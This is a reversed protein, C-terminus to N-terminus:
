LNLRMKAIAGLKVDLKYFDYIKINTNGGNLTTATARVLIKKATGMHAIKTADLNIDTTKTQATNVAGSSLNVNAAALVLENPLLLSDLVNYNEDTFFVQMEVDIPFGNTITTRMLCTEIKDANAFKFDFTDQVSFDKATGYMPLNVEMDLSIKSTDIVFNTAPVGTPNSLADVKYVLQQPKNNIIGFVNSNSNTLSFSTQMSQGAQNVTPSNLPLPNPIGTQALAYYGQAPTYGDFRTISARVPLGFSNNITFKIEPNVITFAGLGYVNKFVSIEVTDLDPALQNQGFYGFLSKFKLDNMLPAIYLRNATTPSSSSGSIFSVTYNVRLKNFSAGGNTFDATCGNLDFTASPNGPSTVNFPNGNNYSFPVTQSLVMGNKRISPISITISGNQLFDSNVVINLTGEKFTASDARLNNSLAVDIVQSVTFSITGVNNLVTVQNQTLAITQYTNQDPISYLDQATKSFLASKYILTCFRNSDVVVTSNPNNALIDSLKLSSYVLPVAMEPSLTTQELKELDFNDKVCGVLFFNLVMVCMVSFDLLVKNRMFSIKIM